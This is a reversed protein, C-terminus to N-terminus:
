KQDGRVGIGALVGGAILPIFKLSMIFVGFVARIVLPLLVASALILFILSFLALTRICEPVQM